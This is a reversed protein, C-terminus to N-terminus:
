DLMHLRLPCHQRGDITSSWDTSAISQAVYCRITQRTKASSELMSSSLSFSITRQLSPMSQRRPLRLYLNCEEVLIVQAYGCDAEGGQSDFTTCRSEIPSSMQHHRCEEEEASYRPSRAVFIWQRPVSTETWRSRLSHRSSSTKERGQTKGDISSM